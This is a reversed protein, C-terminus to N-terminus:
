IRQTWFLIRKSQKASHRLFSITPKLFPSTDRWQEKM